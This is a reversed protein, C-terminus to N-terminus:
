KEDIVELHNLLDKAAKQEGEKKSYGEGYGEIENNVLVKVFFKRRHPPGEFRITDYVIESDGLQQYYEQLKSKYDMIIKNETALNIIEEFNELVFGRVIEMGRDLYIAAIIAEVADALISVRHRGGTLEEGKSMRIFKGLDWKTAIKYLSNECVILSRLKSLEGEKKEKYKNYLYDSIVVQLVADGLFELRENYEVKIKPKAYSSHTIAELLLHRNNFEIKLRKSLEEILIKKDM